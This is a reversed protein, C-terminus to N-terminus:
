KRERSQSHEASKSRQFGRWTNSNPEHHSSLPDEFYRSSQNQHFYRSNCNSMSYQDRPYFNYPFQHEVMMDNKRTSNLEKVIELLLTRDHTREDRERNREKREGKKDSIVRKLTEVEERHEKDRKDEITQQVLGKLQQVESVLDSSQNIMKSTLLSSLDQHHRLEQHKEQISDVVNVLLSASVEELDDKTAQNKQTNQITVIQDLYSTQQASVNKVYSITSAHAKLSESQFAESSSSQKLIQRQLEDLDRKSFLQRHLNKMESEIFHNQSLLSTELNSRTLYDVNIPQQVSLSRLPRNPTSEIPDVNIDADIYTSKTNNRTARTLSTETSSNLAKPRGRTLKKSKIASKLMDKAKDITLSSTSNATQDVTTMRPRLRGLITTSPKSLADGNSDYYFLSSSVGRIPQWNKFAEDRLKKKKKLLSITVV